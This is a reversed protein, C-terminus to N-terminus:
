RGALMAQRGAERRALTVNLIVEGVADYDNGADGSVGETWAIDRKAHGLRITAGHGYLNMLVAAAAYDKCAAQYVGHADYIKLHPASAM